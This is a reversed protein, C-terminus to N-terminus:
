SFIRIQVSFRSFFFRRSGFQGRSGDGPKPIRDAVESGDAISRDVDESKNGVGSRDAISRDVTSTRSGTRIVKVPDNFRPARALPGPVPKPVQGM